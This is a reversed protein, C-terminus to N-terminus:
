PLYGWDGRAERYLNDGELKYDFLHVWFLDFAMNESQIRLAVTDDQSLTVPRSQRLAHRTDPNKQLDILAAAGIQVSDISTSDKDDKRLVRLVILTPIGRQIVPGDKSIAMPTGINLTAEKPDHSGIPAVRLAVKDSLSFPIAIQGSSFSRATILMTLTMFSSLKLSFKSKIACKGNPFSFYHKRLPFQLQDVSDGRYQLSPGGWGDNEWKMKFGGLRKDCLPYDCGHTAPVKEIEFSVMPAFPEQVLQLSSHPIEKWGQGLEDCLVELKYYAPAAATYYSYGSLRNIDPTLLLLPSEMTSNHNTHLFALESATSNMKNNYVRTIHSNCYLSFGNASTVRYHAESRKNAIVSTFFVFSGPIAVPGNLYPIMARIRRGLFTTPMTIDTHHSFWFVEVGYQPEIALPQKGLGVGYFQLMASEKIEKKPSLTNSIITQIEDKVHLWKKKSNWFAENEKSPYLHGGRQGGQRIFETQLCVLQFPGPTSDLLETCFDYREVPGKLYMDRTTVHLKGHSQPGMLAVGQTQSRGQLADRNLGIISRQKYEEYIPIKSSDPYFTDERPKINLNSFTQKVQEYLGSFM